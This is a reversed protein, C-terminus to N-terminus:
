LLKGWANTPPRPQMLIVKIGARGAITWKHIGRWPQRLILLSEWVPLSYTAERLSASMNAVRALTDFIAELHTGVKPVEARRGL